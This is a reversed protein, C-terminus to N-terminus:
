QKPGTQAECVALERQLRAREDQGDLNSVLLVGFILALFLDNGTFGTMEEIRDMLRNM